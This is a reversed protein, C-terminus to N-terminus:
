HIVPSFPTVETFHKIFNGPNTDGAAILSCILDISNWLFVMGIAGIILGVFLPKSRKYANMGGFKVILRKIGWAFLVSGWITSNMSPTHGPATYPHVFDWHISFLIVLYGIPHIPFTLFKQRLFLLLAVALFGIAITSLRIMNVSTFKDLGPEGLFHAIWLPYTTFNISNNGAPPLSTMGAYFDEGIYYAYLIFSLLGVGLATVFAAITGVALGSAKLQYRRALELNELQQPLTRFLLTMPLFVINLFATFVKAGTMGTMGFILPIKTMEYHSQWLPLGTEARIRAAAIAIAMVVIAFALLLPLNTVGMNWLLGLIVLPLLIMGTRTLWAPLYRESEERQPDLNGPKWSKYLIYLSFCFAAGLMQEMAFPYLRSSSYGTWASDTLQNAFGLRVIWVVISYIFFTAWISFGIQLSLLFVIGIIIPSLTFVMAPMDRFAGGAAEFINSNLNFEVKYVASLFGYHGMGEMLMWILGIACGILFPPYFTRRRKEPHVSDSALELRYDHRIIYDAVEVLPFTLNEKSVWKRRLWEALCMLFLFLCIFLFSWSLLPKVWIQWPIQQWTYSIKELLSAQSLLEPNPSTRLLGDRFAFLNQNPAQTGDQQILRRREDRSLRFVFDQRMQDQEARTLADFEQLYISKLYDRLLSRDSSMLHAIQLRLTTEHRQLSAVQATIRQEDADSKERVVIQLRQRASLDMGSQNSALLNAVFEDYAPLHEQLHGLNQRSRNSSLEIQQELANRLGLTDLRGPEVSNLIENAADGSLEEITRLWSARLANGRGTNLTTLAQNFELDDSLLLSITRRANAQRSLESADTMLRLYRDARNWALGEATPVVAFWNSDLANYATRYTSTGEYLYERLVSYSALYFQRVLGINMIPVAITLMAYLVVLNHREIWERKALTRFALACLAFSILLGVAWGVPTFTELSANVTMITLFQSLPTIVAILVLGFVITTLSAKKM